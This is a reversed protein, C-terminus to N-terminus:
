PLQSWTATECVRTQGDYGGLYLLEGDRSYELSGVNCHNHAFSRRLGGSKADWEEVIGDSGASALTAGDPAFAVAMVASNQSRATWLEKGSASDFVQVKRGMLSFAVHRGDPAAAIGTVFRLGSNNVALLKRSPWDYQCFGQTMNAVSLRDGDRNFSVYSADKLPLKLCDVQKLSAVDWVEALPESYGVVFTSGDPSIAVSRAHTRNGSNMATRISGTEVDVISIQGGYRCVVVMRGDESMAGTSIEFHPVDIQQLVINATRDWVRLGYKMSKELMEGSATAQVSFVTNNFDNGSALDDSAAGFGSGSPHMDLASLAFLAMGALLAVTGLEVLPEIALLGRRPASHSAAVQSATSRRSTRYRKQDVTVHYRM